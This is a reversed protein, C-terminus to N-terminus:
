RMAGVLSRRLVYCTRKEFSGGTTESDSWARGVMDVPRTAQQTDDEACCCSVGAATLVYEHM